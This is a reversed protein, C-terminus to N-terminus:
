FHLTQKIMKQAIYKNKIVISLTDEYRMKQKITLNINCLKVVILM